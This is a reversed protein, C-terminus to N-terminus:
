WAIRLGSTWSWGNFSGGNNARDRMSAYQLGTQLKLKHDFIYYNLGGYVEQYEDGRQGGFAASEYRGFRVGDDGSSRVFTYRLVAQLKDNINFYPMVAFGCVDPQSGFGEAAAIDGHLGFADREHRFNLSVINGLNRNVFMQPASNAENHIYDLRIDTKNGPLHESLDYGVSAIWTTGSDFRGLEGNDTGQSFGGGFYSWNGIKGGASAGSAYENTFWLNNSLNNRDVTLLEKSSTAGDLTFPMGQKGVKIGFAKSALWGLYADTLRQYAPDENTDFEGEIHATFDRFVTAKFGSRLRRLGAFDYSDSSDEAGPNQTQTGEVWAFDLHLRGTLSLQQIYPNAPNEYLKVLSWTQHFADRTLDGPADAGFVVCTPLLAIIVPGCRPPKM